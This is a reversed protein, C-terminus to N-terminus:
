LEPLIGFEQTIVTLLDESSRELIELARVIQLRRGIEMFIINSFNNNEILDEYSGELKGEPLAIDYSELISTSTRYIKANQFLIRLYYEDNFSRYDFERIDLNDLSRRYTALAYRVEYSEIRQYTASQILEEIAIRRPNYASM